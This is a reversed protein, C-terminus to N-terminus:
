NTIIESFSNVVMHLANGQKTLELAHGNLEDQWILREECSDNHYTKGKENVFEIQSFKKLKWLATILANIPHKGMYTPTFKYQRNDVIIDIAIAGYFEYDFEIDVNQMDYYVILILCNQEYKPLLFRVM